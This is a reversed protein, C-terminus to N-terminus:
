PPQLIHAAENPHYRLVHTKLCSKFTFQKSCAPCVNRKVGTHTDCHDNYHSLRTYGKGCTACRYRAQHQHQNKVHEAVGSESVFMRGCQPCAVQKSASHRVRRRIPQSKKMFVSSRGVSSHRSHEQMQQSSNDNSRAFSPLDKGLKTALDAGRHRQGSPISCVPGDAFVQCLYFPLPFRM